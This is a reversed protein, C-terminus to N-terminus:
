KKAGLWLEAAERMATSFGRNGFLKKAKARVDDMLKKPATFAHIPMKM